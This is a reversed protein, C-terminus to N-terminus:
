KKLKIHVYEGALALEEEGVASLTPNFYYRTTTIQQDEDEEVDQIFSSIIVGESSGGEEQPASYRVLSEKTRQVKGIMQTVIRKETYGDSEDDSSGWINDDGPSYYAEERQTNNDNNHLVVHRRSLEEILGNINYSTIFFEEKYEQNEVAVLSSKDLKAILVDDATFAKGDSGAGLFKSVQKSGDPYEITFKHSEILSEGDFSDIGLLPRVQIANGQEDIVFLQNHLSYDIIVDDVTFWQGDAGPAGYHVLSINTRDILQERTEKQYNDIEDDMTFWVGDAGPNLCAIEYISGGSTEYVKLYYKEVVDDQTFWKKDAGIGHKLPRYFVTIDTREDDIKQFVVKNSNEELTYYSYVDDDSTLYIGDNGSAREDNRKYTAFITLSSDLAEDPKKKEVTLESYLIDRTITGEFCGVLLVSAFLLVCLVRYRKIDM